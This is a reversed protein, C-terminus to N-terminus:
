ISYSTTITSYEDISIIDSYTAYVILTMVESTPSRLHLNIDMVGGETMFPRYRNSKDPSRDFAILFNGNYYDKKSIGIEKNDGAIGINELFDLYFGATDSSSIDLTYRNPPELLGNVVLNVERLNYPKFNFPNKEQDGNFSAQPLMGVFLQEPLKNGEFIKYQSLNSTGSPITYTKIISRDINLKAPNKSINEKLFNQIKESPTIKYMKLKLNDIEIKYDDIGSTLLSFKDNNRRFSFKM